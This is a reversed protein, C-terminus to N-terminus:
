LYTIELAVYSDYEATEFNSGNLEVQNEYTEGMTSLIKQQIIRSDCEQRDVPTYSKIEEHAMHQIECSIVATEGPRGNVKVETNKFMTQARLLVEDFNPLFFADHKFEVYAAPVFRARVGIYGTAANSSAPSVSSVGGRHIASTRLASQAKLPAKFDTSENYSYTPLTNSQVSNKEDYENALSPTSVMLPILFFINLFSRTM